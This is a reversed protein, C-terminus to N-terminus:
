AKEKLRTVKLLFNGRGTELVLTKEDASDSGARIYDLVPEDYLGDLIEALADVVEAIEIADSM